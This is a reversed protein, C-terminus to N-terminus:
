CRGGPGRRRRRRRSRRRDGPAGPRGGRLRRRRGGDASGAPSSGPPERRGATAAVAAARERHSQGAGPPRVGLARLHRAVKVGTAGAGVVVVHSDASPWSARWWQVAASAVSLAGVGLATEARTLRGARLAAQVVGRLFPGAGPSADLAARVQGLIEAEGLVLSELGACVRFLHTAAASGCLFGTMPRPGAAAQSFARTVTEDDLGGRSRWYVETRNCTALVFSEIGSTALQTHLAAARRPTSRTDALTGIGVTRHNVTIARLAKLGSSAVADPPAERSPPARRRLRSSVDM